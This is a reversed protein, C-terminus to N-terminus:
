RLTEMRFRGAAARAQAVTVLNVVEPGLLLRRASAHIAAATPVDSDSRQRAAQVGAPFFALDRTRFWARTLQDGDYSPQLNPLIPSAPVRGGTLWEPADIVSLQRVAMRRLDSALMAAYGHAVIRDAGLYEIAAVTATAAAELCTAPEAPPDSWGCGPADVISSTTSRGSVRPPSWAEVTVEGSASRTRAHIYGDGLRLLLRRPSGVIRLQDSTTVDLAEAAEGIAALWRGPDDSVRRVSVRGLGKVRGAHGELLDSARVVVTSPVACTRAWAAADFHAACRYALDYGAGAMLFGTVTRHLVDVSPLDSGLRCCPERRHWPFWMHLDKIRSWLATLHSGTWCPEFPVLYNAIFDDRESITFAPLGDLILAAVRHPAMSAAAAAIAAGTHAGFLVIRDAGIRDLTRLLAAAYDDLCPAGIPLPDSLGYGPTDFAVVRFRHSLGTVVPLLSLSSRPSEHLAVLVPGSGAARYHVDRGDVDIFGREVAEDGAYRAKLM